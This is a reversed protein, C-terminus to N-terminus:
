SCREPQSPILVAGDEPKEGKIDKKFRHTLETLEAGAQTENIGPKLRGLGVVSHFGTSTLWGPEHSVVPVMMFPLWLDPAIGAVTGTFTEPAVGIVTLAVGNINLTQGVAQPDAALRNKWFNHSVVIVPHTGPTRDEAPIFFRGLAPPIGCLDFFNGSVSLTQVSEGAGNRSWSKFSPESDFAGLAIFSQNHERLFSIEVPGWVGYRKMETTAKPRLQWIQWLEDAKEVPPPRLLLVNVFSFITTNAAIGLALSIIAIATLGPNKAFQRFAFKLDNMAHERLQQFGKCFAHWM